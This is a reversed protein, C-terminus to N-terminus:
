LEGRKARLRKRLSDTRSLLEECYHTIIENETDSLETSSELTSLLCECGETFQAVQRSIREQFFGDSISTTHSKMLDVRAPRVTTNAKMYILIFLCLSTSGVTRVIETVYPPLKNIYCGILCNNQSKEGVSLINMVAWSRCEMFLLLSM